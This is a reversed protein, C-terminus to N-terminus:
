LLSGDNEVNQRYVTVLDGDGDSFATFDANRIIVQMGIFVPQIKLVANGAFFM